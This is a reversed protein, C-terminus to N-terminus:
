NGVSRLYEVSAPEIEFCPIIGGSPYLGVWYNGNDMIQLIVAEKGIYDIMATDPRMVPMGTIKVIDRERMKDDEYSVKMNCHNHYEKPFNKLFSELYHKVDSILFEPRVSQGNSALYIDSAEALDRLVSLNLTTEKRM